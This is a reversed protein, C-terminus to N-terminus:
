DSTTSRFGVIRFLGFETPLKAEAEKTVTFGVTARDQEKNLKITRRRHKGINRLIRKDSYTDRRSYTLVRNKTLLRLRAATSLVVVIYASQIYDRDRVPPLAPQRVVSAFFNGA